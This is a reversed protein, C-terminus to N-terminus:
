SSAELEGNGSLVSRASSRHDPGDSGPIRFAILGKRRAITGEKTLQTLTRYFSEHTLGLDDAISKLPRDVVVTAQGPPALVLLYQLIRERASQLNRLELRIRLMNFRKTLAAMFEDSLLPHEHFAALLARKPFIAVRSAIEAVVDGCYNEAFLAAESVCEGPRIVYLPVTKGESTYSFLTLRGREVVFIAVSKDGRHYLMEGPALERHRVAARIEAPLREPCLLFIPRANCAREIGNM